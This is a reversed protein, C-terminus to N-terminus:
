QQKLGKWFGTYAAKKRYAQDFLLSFEERGQNVVYWSYNDSVGWVTVGYRQAAPVNLYYSQLVFRYMAAQSNLLAETPVFGTTNSPNIRIDLESIRVKLGTAAMKVFMADIGAKDTNISIHMQTGVGTIPVGQSKLQNALAVFSDVKAPNYELNYDNLFLDATADYERAYHFAKAIYGRGLYEAWYYTDGTTGSGNRLVPTGDTYPENVVDWAKVKPSPYRTVSARIWRKLASDVKEAVIPSGPAPTTTQLIRIDDIWYTGTKNFWIKLTPNSEACTFPISYETWSAAPSLDYNPTLSTGSATQNIIKFSGGATNTKAWLKLVYQTGMVGPWFNNAGNNQIMQVDYGNTGLTTVTVKFARTGQPPSSTEVEYTAVAPAATLRAWHPAFSTATGSEFDGNQGAFVDTTGAVTALSRLYDGNQNQHWALTHGFVWLGAASAKNVMEDTKSFDFSGDNRVIAGHKMHYGFTVNSAERHVVAAYAPDNKYENYDVALGVAFLAANKLPGTSSTDYPPTVPPSPAADKSKKCSTISIVVAFFILYNYNVTRRM